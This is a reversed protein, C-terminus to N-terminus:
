FKLLEATSDSALEDFDAYAAEDMDLVFDNSLAFPVVARGALAQLAARRNAPLSRRVSDIADASRAAQRRRTGAARESRLIFNAARLETALTDALLSGVAAEGREGGINGLPLVRALDAYRERALAASLRVAVDRDGDAALASGLDALVLSRLAASGAGRRASAVRRVGSQLQSNAAANAGVAAELATEATRLEGVTARQAKLQAAFRESSAAQENRLREILETDNSASATHLMNSLRALNDAERQLSARQAEEREALARVTEEAKDFATRAANTAARTQELDAAAQGREARAAVLQRAAAGAEASWLAAKAALEAAGDARSVVREAAAADGDSPPREVNRATVLADVAERDLLAHELLHKRASAAAALADDLLAAEDSGDATVQRRVGIRALLLASNAGDDRSLPKQAGGAPHNRLELQGALAAVGAVVAGPAPAAAGAHMSGVPAAPAAARAAAAWPDGAVSARVGAVGLDSAAAGDLQRMLDDRLRPNREGYVPHAAREQERLTRLYAATADANGRVAPPVLDAVTKFRGVEREATRMSIDGAYPENYPHLQVEISRERAVRAAGFLHSM